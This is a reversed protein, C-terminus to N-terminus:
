LNYSSESHHVPYAMVYVSRIEFEVEKKISFLYFSIMSAESVFHVYLLHTWQEIRSCNSRLSQSMVVKM